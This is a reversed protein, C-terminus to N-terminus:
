SWGHVVEVVHTCNGLTRCSCIACAMPRLPDARHFVFPSGWDSSPHRQLLISRRPTLRFKSLFLGHALNCSTSNNPYADFQGFWHNLYMRHFRSAPPHLTSRHLGILEHPSRCESSAAFSLWASRGCCSSGARQVVEAQGKWAQASLGSGRCRPSRRGPSRRVSQSRIAVSVTRSTARLVVLQVAM